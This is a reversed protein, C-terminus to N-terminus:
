RQHSLYRGIIVSTLSVVLTNIVGVVAGDGMKSVLTQFTFRMIRSALYLQGYVLAVTLYFFAYRM